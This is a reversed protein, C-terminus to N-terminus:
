SKRPRGGKKGNARSARSAKKKDRSLALLTGPKAVWAKGGGYGFNSPQQPTLQGSDQFTFAEHFILEPSGSGGAAGSPLYIAYVLVGGKFKALDRTISIRTSKIRTFPHISM